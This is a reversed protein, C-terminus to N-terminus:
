HICQLNDSETMSSLTYNEMCSLTTLGSLTRLYLYWSQFLNNVEWLCNVWWQKGMDQTDTLRIPWPHPIDLTKWLLIPPQGNGFGYPSSGIELRVVEKNSKVWGRAYHVDRVKIVMEIMSILDKLIRKNLSVHLPPWNEHTKAAYTDLLRLGGWILTPKDSHLGLTELIWHRMTNDRAVELIHHRSSM